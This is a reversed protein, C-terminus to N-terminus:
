RRVDIEFVKIGSRKCFWCPVKNAVDAFTAMPGFREIITPFYVHQRAGCTNCEAEFMRSSMTLFQVPIQDFPPGTDPRFRRTLLQGLKHSLGELM